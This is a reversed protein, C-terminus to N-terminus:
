PEGYTWPAVAGTGVTNTAADAYFAVRSRQDATVDDHGAYEIVTGASLDGGFDGSLELGWPRLGAEVFAPASAVSPTGSGVQPAWSNDLPAWWTPAGVTALAELDPPFGGGYIEAVEGATAAFGVWIAADAIQGALSLSGGGADNIRLPNTAAATVSSALVGDGTGQTIVTTDRYFVTTGADFVIAWHHWAGATVAGAVTQDSTAVGGTPLILKLNGGATTEVHFGNLSRVGEAFVVGADVSSPLYLWFSLTMQSAGDALGQLGYTVADDVGDFSAAYGGALVAAVTETASPTTEAGSADVLRVVDGATFAEPDTTPLEGAADESTYRNVETVAVTGVVSAVKAAPAVAGVKVGAGYGIGRMAVHAAVARTSRDVELVPTAQLVQVNVADWGRVVAAPNPLGACTVGVVGGPELSLGPGLAVEAAIEMRARSSRALAAQGWSEWRGTDDPNAGPVALPTPKTDGYEGRQGIGNRVHPANVTVKRGQPGLAYVISSAAGSRGRQVDVRPELLGRGVSRTLIDTPGIQIAATGLPVRPLIVRVQGGAYTLYAGIPRLLHEVVLDGFSIPEDGFAFAPLELDLTRQRVDDVTDWDVESALQGAGYGPPLSSYNGRAAVYNTLELGDDETASSLLLILLLDLWQSTITWTGSTRSTSPTPGPSYRFSGALPDAVFVQALDAGESLGEVQTWGVGRRGTLLWTTLVGQFTISMIESGNRLFALEDGPWHRLTTLPERPPTVLFIGGEGEEAGEYVRQVTVVRPNRAIERKLARLQGTAQIQWERQSRDWEVSDIRYEGIRTEEGADAADLPALHVELRRGEFFPPSLYVPAGADHALVRSGAYGRTVKISTSSLVSEVRMSEGAVYIVQGSLGTSSGVAITQASGPTAALAAGLGTVPPRDTALLATLHDGTDTIALRTSELQVAGGEDPDFAEGATDPLQSLSPIWVAAPHAAGYGPVRVTWRYRGDGDAAALDADSLWPGLGEIRVIVVWQGALRAANQTWTSM